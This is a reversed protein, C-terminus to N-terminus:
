QAFQVSKFTGRELVRSYLHAGAFLRSVEYFAETVSFLRGSHGAQSFHIFPGRTSRAVAAVCRDFKPCACPSGIQGAASWNGACFRLPFCLTCCSDSLLLM